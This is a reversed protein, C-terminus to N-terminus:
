DAGWPFTEVAMQFSGDEEALAQIVDVGATIVEAGIGDGPIAATSYTKM